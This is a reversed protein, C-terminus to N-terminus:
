HVAQGEKQSVSIKWRRGWGQLEDEPVCFDARGRLTGVSTERAASRLLSWDAAVDKEVKTRSRMQVSVVM